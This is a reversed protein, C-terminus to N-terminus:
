KAAQQKEELLKKLHQQFSAKNKYYRGNRYYRKVNKLATGSFACKKRWEDNKVEEAMTQM